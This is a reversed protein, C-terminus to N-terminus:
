QWDVKLLRASELLVVVNNLAVLPIFVVLATLVVGRVRESSASCRRAVPGTLGFISFATHPTWELFGEFPIYYVSFLALDLAVCLGLILCLRREGPAPARIAIAAGAILILVWCLGLVRVAPTYASRNFNLVKVDTLNQFTVIEVSPMPAIFEYLFFSRSMHSPVNELSGMRQDPDVVWTEALLNFSSGVAFTLIICIGIVTSAYLVTRKFAIRKAHRADSDMAYAVFNKLVNSITVGYTFVGSALYLMPFRWNRRLSLCALLHVIGISLLSFARTEPAVGCLYPTFSFGFLASFLAAETRRAGWALMLAFAVIVSTAGLMSSVAIAATHKTLGLFHYYFGALPRAYLVFLPHVNSRLNHGPEIMDDISREVDFGYIHDNGFLAGEFLFHRGMWFYAQHFVLFLVAGTLLTKRNAKLSALMRRDRYVEGNEHDSQVLSADGHNTMRHAHTPDFAVSGM